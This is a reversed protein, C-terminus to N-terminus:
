SPQRKEEEELCSGYLPGRVKGFVTKHKLRDNTNPAEVKPYPKVAVKQKKQESLKSSKLMAMQQKQIYMSAQALAATSSKRNGNIKDDKVNIKTDKGKEIEEAKIGKM